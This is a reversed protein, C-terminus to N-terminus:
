KVKFGVVNGAAPSFTTAAVGARNIATAYLLYSGTPLSAKAPITYTWNRDKLTAQLLIV